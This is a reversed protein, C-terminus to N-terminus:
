GRIEDNFQSESIVEITGNRWYKIVSVQSGNLDDVVPIYLYNM